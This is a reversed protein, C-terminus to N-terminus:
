SDAILKLILKCGALKPGAQPWSPALKSSRSDISYSGLVLSRPEGTFVGCQPGTAVRVQQCKLAVYSNM